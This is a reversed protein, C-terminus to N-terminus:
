LIRITNYHHLYPTTKLFMHHVLLHFITFDKTYTTNFSNLLHLLRTVAALFNLEEFGLSISMIKIRAVPCLNVNM